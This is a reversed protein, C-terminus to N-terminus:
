YSALLDSFKSKYSLRALLSKEAFSGSGYQWPLLGFSLARLARTQEVTYEIGYSQNTYISLYLNDTFMLIGVLIVTTFNM